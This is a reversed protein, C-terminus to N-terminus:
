FINNLYQLELFICINYNYYPYDVKVHLVATGPPHADAITRLLKGNTLDWM